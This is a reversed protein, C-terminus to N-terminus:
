TGMLPSLDSYTPGILPSLNVLRENPTIDMHYCRKLSPNRHSESCFVSTDIDLVRPVNSTAGSMDKVHTWTSCGAGLGVGGM